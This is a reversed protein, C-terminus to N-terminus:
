ARRILRILLLLIVAGITAVIIKDILPNRFIAGVTQM